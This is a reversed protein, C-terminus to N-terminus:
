WTEFYQDWVFSTSPHFNLNDWECDIFWVFQVEWLLLFTLQLHTIKIDIVGDVFTLNVKM